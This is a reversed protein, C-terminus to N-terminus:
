ESGCVSQPVEQLEGDDGECLAKLFTAIHSRVGAGRPDRKAPTLDKVAVNLSRFGSFKVM